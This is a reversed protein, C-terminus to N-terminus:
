RHKLLDRQSFVLKRGTETGEEEEEEECELADAHLTDNM